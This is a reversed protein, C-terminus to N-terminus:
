RFFLYKLQLSFFMKKVEPTDKGAALQHEKDAPVTKMKGDKGIESVARVSLEKNDM